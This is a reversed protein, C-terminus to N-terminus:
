DFQFLQVSARSIGRVCGEAEADGELGDVLELELNLSGEWEDNIGIM